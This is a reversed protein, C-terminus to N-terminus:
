KFATYEALYCPAIANVLYHKTPSKDHYASEGHYATTNVLVNFELNSLVTFVQARDTVDLDKHTLGTVSLGYNPAYTMFDSGLQGDMGLVVLHM